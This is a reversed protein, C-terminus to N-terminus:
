ANRDRQLIMVPLVLIIVTFIAMACTRPWNYNTAFEWFIARGLTVTKSGGLLEPIVFEGIVPIFVLTCGAIIGNASLPLLIKYFSQFPKAGLDESAEIYAHDINELATYIPFIMFPLYCYVTGICVAFTSDLLKLPQTILGIYILFNNIIGYTSLLTIWAYVRMLFSTFFPLMVLIFLIYRYKPTTSAIGYAIIYGLILAFFTSLLAIKLSSLMLYLYFDSTLLDVYHSLCLKINILFDGTLSFMPSYPPALSDSTESLSIKLISVLPLIIFFLAFLYPPLIISLRKKLGWFKM